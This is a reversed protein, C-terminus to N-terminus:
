KYTIPLDLALDDCIKESNKYADIDRVRPDRSALARLQDLSDRMSRDLISGPFTLAFSARDEDPVRVLMNHFELVGFSLNNASEKLLKYEAPLQTTCNSLILRAKPVARALGQVLITGDKSIATSIM